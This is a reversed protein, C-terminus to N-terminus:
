AGKPIIGERPPIADIRMRTKRRKIAARTHGQGPMIFRVRLKGALAERRLHVGQGHFAGTNVVHDDVRRGSQQGCRHGVQWRISGGGITTGIVVPQVIKAYCRSAADQACRGHVQAIRFFSGPFCAAADLLKIEFRDIDIRDWDPLVTEVVIEVLGQPVRQFLQVHRQREMGPRPVGRILHQVM